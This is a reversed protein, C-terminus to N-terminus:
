RKNPKRQPPQEAPMAMVDVGNVLAQDDTIALDWVMRPGEQRGLGKIMALIPMAMRLDANKGAEAMMADLGTASLRAEIGAKTPTLMRMRGSGEIRLPDQRAAVGPEAILEPARQHGHRLHMRPLQGDGAQCVALM